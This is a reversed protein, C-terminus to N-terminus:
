KWQPKQLAKAIAQKKRIISEKDRNAKSEREELAKRDALLDREGDILLIERELTAQTRLRIDTSLEDSDQKIRELQSTAEVISDLLSGKTKELHELEKQLALVRPTLYQTESFLRENEMKHSRIEDLVVALENRVGDAIKRNREEREEPNM